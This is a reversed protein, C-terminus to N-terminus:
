VFNDRSMQGRAKEFIYKHQPSHNLNNNLTLKNTEDEM